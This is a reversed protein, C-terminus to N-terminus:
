ILRYLSQRCKCLMRVETPLSFDCNMFYLLGSGAYFPLFDPADKWTQLSLCHQWAHSGHKFYENAESKLSISFATSHIFIFRSVSIWGGPSLVLHQVIASILPCLNIEDQFTRFGFQPFPWLVSAQEPHTPFGHLLSILVWRVTNTQCHKDFHDNLSNFM